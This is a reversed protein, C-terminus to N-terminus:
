RHPGIHFRIGTLQGDIYTLPRYVYYLARDVPFILYAKGDRDWVEVHSHRFWVYSTVYIVLLLIAFALLRRKM